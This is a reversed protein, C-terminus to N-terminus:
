TLDDSIGHGDTESQYNSTVVRREDKGVDDKM